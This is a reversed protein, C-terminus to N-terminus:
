RSREKTGTQCSVIPAILPTPDLRPSAGASRGPEALKGVPRGEVRGAGAAASEPVGDRHAGGGKSLLGEALVCEPRPIRALVVAAIKGVRVLNFQKM